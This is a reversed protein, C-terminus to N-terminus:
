LGAPTLAGRAEDVFARRATLVLDEAEAGRWRGSALCSDVFGSYVTAANYLDAARQATAPSNTLQVDALGTTLATWATLYEATRQDLDSGTAPGDARTALAARASEHFQDVTRLYSSSAERRADQWRDARDAIRTATERRQALFPAM